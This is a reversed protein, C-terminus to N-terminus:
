FEEPEYVVQLEYEGFAEIGHEWPDENGEGYLTLFYFFEEYFLVVDRDGDELLTGNKYTNM